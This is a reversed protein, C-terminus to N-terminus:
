FITSSPNWLTIGGSRACCAGWSLAQAGGAGGSALSLLWPQHRTGCGRGTPSPLNAHHAKVDARIGVQPEHPPVGLRERCLEGVQGPGAAALPQEVYAASGARQ